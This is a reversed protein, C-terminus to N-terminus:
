NTFIKAGLLNCKTGQLATEKKGMNHYYVNDNSYFTEEQCNFLQVNVTQVIYDVMDMGAFVQKQLNLCPFRKALPQSITQPNTVSPHIHGGKGSGQDKLSRYKTQVTNRTTELVFLVSTKGSCPVYNAKLQVQECM